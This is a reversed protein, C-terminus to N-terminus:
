EVKRDEVVGGRGEREGGGRRHIEATLNTRDRNTRLGEAAGMPDQLVLAITGRHKRPRSFVPNV